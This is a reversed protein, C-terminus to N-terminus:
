GEQASSSYLVALCGPNRDCVVADANRCRIQGVNEVAEVPDIPLAGFGGSPQPQPQRDGLLNHLGVAAM